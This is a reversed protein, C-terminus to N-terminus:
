GATKPALDIAGHTLLAAGFTGYFIRADIRTLVAVVFRAKRAIMFFDWDLTSGAAAFVGAAMFFLGLLNM